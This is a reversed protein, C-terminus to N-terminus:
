RNMRMNIMMWSLLLIKLHILLFVGTFNTHKGHICRPVKLHFWKSLTAANFSTVGLLLDSVPRGYVYVTHTHLSLCRDSEPMLEWEARSFAKISFEMGDGKPNGVPILASQVIRLM